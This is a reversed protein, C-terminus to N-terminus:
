VGVRERATLTALGNGSRGADAAFAEAADAFHARVNRTGVGDNYYGYHYVHLAYVSIQMRYLICVFYM